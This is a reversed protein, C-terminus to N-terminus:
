ISNLQEKLIEKSKLIKQSIRQKSLNKANGIKQCSLKDIFKQQLIELMEDSLIKSLKPFEDFIAQNETLTPTALTNEFVEINEQSFNSTVAFIKDVNPNKFHKFCMSLYSLIKLPDNIGKNIIYVLILDFEAEFTQIDVNYKYAYKKIFGEFHHHLLNLSELKNKKVDNILKPLLDKDHIM